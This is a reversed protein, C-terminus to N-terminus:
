VVFGIVLICIGIYFLPLPVGALIVLSGSAIAGLAWVIVAGILAWLSGAKADLRDARDHQREVIRIGLEFLFGIGSETPLETTRPESSSEPQTVLKGEVALSEDTSPGGSHLTQREFKAM